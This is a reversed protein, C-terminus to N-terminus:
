WANAAKIRRSVYVMKTNKSHSREKGHFGFGPEM